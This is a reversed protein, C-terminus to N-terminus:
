SNVAWKGAQFNTTGDIPDVIWLLREGSMASDNAGNEQNCKLAQMLAEVSAQRGSDVDEEGLFADTPFSDMVISKIVRQCEIDSETVLDAANSKTKSVAIKGSTRKMIEGARYAANKAVQLVQEYDRTAGLCAATSV